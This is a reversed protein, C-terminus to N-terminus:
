VTVDVRLNNHHFFFNDRSFVTAGAILARRFEEHEGRKRNARGAEAFRIFLM